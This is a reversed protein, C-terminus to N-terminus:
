QISAATNTISNVLHIMQKTAPNSFVQVVSIDLVFWLVYIHSLEVWFTSKCDIYVDSLMERSHSTSGRQIWTDWVWIEAWVPQEYKPKMTKNM